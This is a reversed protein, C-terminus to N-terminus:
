NIIADLLGNLVDLLVFVSSLEARLDADAGAFKGSKLHGLNSTSVAIDANLNNTEDLVPDLGVVSLLFDLLVEILSARENWAEASDTVLNDIVSKRVNDLPDLVVFVGGGNAGLETEASRLLRHNESGLHLTM